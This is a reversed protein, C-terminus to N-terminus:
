CDRGPNVALQLGGYKGLSLRQTADSILSTCHKETKKNNHSNIM